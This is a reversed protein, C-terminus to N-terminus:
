AGEQAVGQRGWGSWRLLEYTSMGAAIATPIHM